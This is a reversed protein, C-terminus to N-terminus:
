AAKEESIPEITLPDLIIWGARYGRAVAHQDADWLAQVGGPRSQAGLMHCPCTCALEDCDAHLQHECTPSGLWRTSDPRIRAREAGCFSCVVVTAGREEHTNAITLADCNPCRERIIEPKREAVELSRYANEATRAFQIADKAGDFTHVWLDVTMDARSKLHRECEDLALFVLTLNSYGDSAASKIGGGDPSVVRGGTEEVLRVFDGWGAVADIVRQYCRECLYGRDAKRPLCGRCIGPQEAWGPHDQCTVRHVGSETCVPVGPLREATICLITM